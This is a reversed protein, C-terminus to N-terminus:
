CRPSCVSPPESNAASAKSGSGLSRHGPGTRRSVADACIGHGMARGPIGDPSVGPFKAPFVRRMSDVWAAVPLQTRIRLQDLGGAARAVREVADGPAGARVLLVSAAFVAAGTGFDGFWVVPPAGLVRLYHWLNLGGVLWAGFAVLGAKWAPQRLAFLLVPVPAFWMLPWRPMLGNAWISCRRLRPSRWCCTVSAAWGTQLDWLHVEPISSSSLARFDEASIEVRGGLYLMVLGQLMAGTEFVIEWYRGQPLHRAEHRSGFGSRFVEGDSIQRRSLRGPVPPGGQATQSVDVRVDPPKELAFDLFVDLINMLQKVPNAPLSANVARAALDQFGADALSNLLDDRDAVHRYLAMPTIGVAKAVRRMTVADPGERDLLKRAATRIRDTTSKAATSKAATYVLTYRLSTYVTFLVPGIRSM